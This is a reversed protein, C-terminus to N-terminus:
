IPMELVENPHGGFRFAILKVVQGGEFCFAGSCICIDAMSLLNKIGFYLAIDTPYTEKVKVDVKTDQIRDEHYGPGKEYHKPSSSTTPSKTRAM